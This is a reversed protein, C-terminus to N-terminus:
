SHSGGGRRLVVRAPAGDVGLIKLPLCILEYDGPPVKSLDLGEVVVVERNLLLKHVPLTGADFMDISLYDIGVLKVGKEILFEAADETLSVFDERFRDMGKAWFDSNRTKFIIRTAAPWNVSGLTDADIRNVEPLAVVSAPGILVNLPIQEISKGNDFLHRPADVHTGLHLSSHIATSNAIDGRNIFSCQEFKVPLDGPWVPIRKHLAVSIDFIKMRTEGRM